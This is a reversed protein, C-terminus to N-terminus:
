YKGFEKGATTYVKEKTEANLYANGVDAGLIELDNLAAILFSIRVSDKSVVSIISNDSESTIPMLKSISTHLLNMLHQTSKYTSTLGYKYLM